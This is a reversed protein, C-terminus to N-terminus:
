IYINERNKILIEHCVSFFERSGSIEPYGPAAESGKSGDRVPM